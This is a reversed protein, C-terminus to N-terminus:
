LCVCVCHLTKTTHGWPNASIRLSKALSGEACCGGAEPQMAQAPAVSTEWRHIRESDYSASRFPYPACSWHLVFKRRPVHPILLFASFPIWTVMPCFNARSNSDLRPAPRPYILCGGTVQSRPNLWKMYNFINQPGSSNICFCNWGLCVGEFTDSLRRTQM